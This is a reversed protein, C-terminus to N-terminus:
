LSLDHFNIWLHVRIKLPKIEFIFLGTKLHNSNVSAGEGHGM